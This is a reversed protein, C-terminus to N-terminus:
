YRAWDIYNTKYNGKETRWNDTNQKLFVGEQFYGWLWFYLPILDPSQPPWPNYIVRDDDFLSQIMVMSERTMHCTEGYQRLYCHRGATGCATLSLCISRPKKRLWYSTLYEWRIILFDQYRQSYRARKLEDPELLTARQWDDQWVSNRRPLKKVVPIRTVLNMPFVEDLNETLNRWDPVCLPQRLRPYRKEFKKWAPVVKILLFTRRVVRSKVGKFAFQKLNEVITHSVCNV